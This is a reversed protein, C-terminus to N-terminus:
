RAPPRRSGGRLVEGPMPDEEDVQGDPDDAGQRSEAEDRVGDRRPALAEVEGTRDEEEPAQERQHQGQGETLFEPEERRGDRREEGRGGDRKATNTITSSRTSGSGIISSLSNVWGKNVTLTTVPNM